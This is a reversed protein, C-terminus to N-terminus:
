VLWEKSEGHFKVRIHSDEDGSVFCDGWVRATNMIDIRHITEKGNYKWHAPIDNMFYVQLPEGERLEWKADDPIWSALDDADGYIDKDQLYKSHECM